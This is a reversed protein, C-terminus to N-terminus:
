HWPMEGKAVKASIELSLDGGLDPYRKKMAAILAKSDAAKAAEEDFARIYGASFRVAELNQAAAEAFHGPIVVDPKLDEISKLTALWAQHSQPTQTDAMFLHEGAVVPVGGAVTRISPIWVYSRDPTAGDLGVIQLSQGELEIRDGELPQPVVIRKPANAGLKPGWYAFKGEQTSRIHEVTQPTALIKAEPFADQLTDLGFYFDPDGHSIYITTLRKGSAKVLDVLKRADAAAFQADILVADREGSVLVSSVEFIGQKGPNYVETKLPAAAPTSPVAATPAASSEAPASEHRGCAALALSLCAASM